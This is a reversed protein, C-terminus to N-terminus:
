NSCLLVSIIQVCGWKIGDSVGLAIKVLFSGPLPHLGHEAGPVRQGLDVGGHHNDDCTRAHVEVECPAEFGHKPQLVVTVNIFQSILNTIMM